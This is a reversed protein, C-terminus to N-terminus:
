WNSDHAQTEKFLIQMLKQNPLFSGTREKSENERWKKDKEKQVNVVQEVNRELGFGRNWKYKEVQFATPIQGFPVVLVM